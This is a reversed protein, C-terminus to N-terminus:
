VHARGIEAAAVEKEFAEKAATVNTDTITIEPAGAKDLDSDLEEAILLIVEQKVTQFDKSEDEIIVDAREKSEPTLPSDEVMQSLTERKEDM